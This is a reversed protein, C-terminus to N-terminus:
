ARLPIHRLLGTLITHNLTPLLLLPLELHDNANHSFKQVVVMQASSMDVFCVIGSPLVKAIWLLIKWM